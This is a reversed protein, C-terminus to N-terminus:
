LQAEPGGADDRLVCCVAHPSAGFPAFGLPAACDKAFPVDVGADSSVGTVPAHDLGRLPCAKLLQLEGSAADLELFTMAPSFEPVPFGKSGSTQLAYMRDHMGLTRADAFGAHPCTVTSSVM